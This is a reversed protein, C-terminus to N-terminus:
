TWRSWVSARMSLVWRRPPTWRMSAHIHPIGDRDIEVTVPGALRPLVARLDGGPLSMWLLGAVACVALLLLVAALGLLRRLLRLARRM